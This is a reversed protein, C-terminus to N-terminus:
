EEKRQHDAPGLARALAMAEDRSLQQGKQWEEDARERGIAQRALELADGSEFPPTFLMGGTDAVLRTAVGYLQAGREPEGSRAAVVALYRFVIQLAIEDGISNFLEAARLSRERAEEFDGQVLATGGSISNAYAALFVDGSAEFVRRVSEIRPRPM